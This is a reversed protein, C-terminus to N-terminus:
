PDVEPPVRAWTPVETMDAFQCTDCCRAYPMLSLRTLPIMGGCRHCLGYTGSDMRQNAAEIEALLDHVAALRRSTFEADQALLTQQHDLTARLETLPLAVPTATVHEVPDARGTTRTPM